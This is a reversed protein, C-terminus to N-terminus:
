AYLHLWGSNAAKLTQSAVPTQTLCSSLHRTGAANRRFSQLKWYTLSRWLTELPGMRYFRFWLNSLAIQLIWILLVILMQGARSIRGYLSCGEGYFLPSHIVTQLLYNMM